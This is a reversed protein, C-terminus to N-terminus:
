AGVKQNSFDGAFCAEKRNAQPLLGKIMSTADAPVADGPSEGPAKEAASAGEPLGAALILALGLTTICSAVPTLEVDGQCM